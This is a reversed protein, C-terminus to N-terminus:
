QIWAIALRIPQGDAATWELSGRVDKSIVLSPRFQKDGSAINLALSIEDGRVTPIVSINERLGKLHAAANPIWETNLDLRLEQGSHGILRPKAILSGDRTVEIQLVTQDATASPYPLRSLPDQAVAPSVGLAVLCTFVVLRGFNM